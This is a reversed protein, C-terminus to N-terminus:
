RDRDNRGGSGSSAILQTNMESRCRSSASGARVAANSAKRALRGSPEPPEVDKAVQELGPDAVVVIGFQRGPDRPGQAGEGVAADGDAEHGAVAVEGEARVVGGAGAHFQQGVRGADLRGACRGHEHMAVRQAGVVGGVLREPGLHAVRDPQRAHERLGQRDAARERRLRPFATAGVGGAGALRDHVDVGPRDGVGEAPVVDVQQDVAVRVTGGDVVVGDVAPGAPADDQAVPVVLARHQLDVVVAPHAQRPDVM